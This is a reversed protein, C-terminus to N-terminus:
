SEKDDALVAARAKIMAETMEPGLQRYLLEDYHLYEFFLKLAESVKTATEESRFYNLGEYNCDDWGEFKEFGSYVRVHGDIAREQWEPNIGISWYKKDKDARWRSSEKVEEIFKHRLLPNLEYPHISDPSFEDGVNILVPDACEGYPSLDFIFEKLVKYKKTM